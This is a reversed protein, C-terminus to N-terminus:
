LFCTTNCTDAFAILGKTSLTKPFVVYDEHPLGAAISVESSKNAPSLIVEIGMRKGEAVMLENLRVSNAEGPNFVVGIRKLHPLLKQFMEFQPRIPTLNSVGTIRGEPRELNQVIKSTVPDTVSAFVIPTDADRTVAMAAQTPSTGLTVIVDAHAGLSKQAIQMAMAINGQANGYIWKINKNPQFGRLTLADAIGQRSANLAPHEVAQIVAVTQQHTKAKLPFSLSLTLSSLSFFLLLFLSFKFYFRRPALLRQNLFNSADLDNQYRVPQYQMQTM